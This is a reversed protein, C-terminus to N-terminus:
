GNEINANQVQQLIGMIALQQDPTQRVPPPSDWKFFDRHTWVKDSEKVRNSNLIMAAITGAHIDALRDGFPEIQELLMWEHFERATMREMVEARTM